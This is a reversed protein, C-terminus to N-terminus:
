EIKQDILEEAKQVMGSMYDTFTTNENVFAAIYSCLTPYESFFEVPAEVRCRADNYRNTASAFMRVGPIVLMASSLVELQDSAPRVYEWLERRHLQQATEKTLRMKSDWTNGLYGLLLVMEKDETEDLFDYLIKEMFSTVEQPKRIGPWELVINEDTLTFKYQNWDGLQVIREPPNIPEGTLGDRFIYEINMKITSIISSLLGETKCNQCESLGATFFVIYVM